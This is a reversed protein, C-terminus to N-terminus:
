DARFAVKALLITVLAIIGLVAKHEKNVKLARHLSFAREVPAARSQPYGDYGDGFRARM